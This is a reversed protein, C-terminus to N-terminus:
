EAPKDSSIISSVDDGPTATGAPKDKMQTLYYREYYQQYYQQWSSHYNQWQKAAAAYAASDDHSRDYVSSKEDTDTNKNESAEEKNLPAENQEPQNNSLQKDKWGSQPQDFTNEESVEEHEIRLEGDQSQEEDESENSDEAEIAAAQAAEKNPPDNKYAEEIKQRALNAAADRGAVDDTRQNNLADDANASNQFPTKPM